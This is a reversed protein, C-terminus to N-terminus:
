RDATRHVSEARPKAGTFAADPQGPRSPRQTPFFATSERSILGSLIGATLSLLIGLISEKTKRQIM